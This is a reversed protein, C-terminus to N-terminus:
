AQGIRGPFTAELTLACLATQTPAIEIEAEVNAADAADRM